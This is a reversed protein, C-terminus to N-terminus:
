WVCVRDRGGAKASIVAHKALGIVDEESNSADLLSLGLSVTVHINTGNHLKIQMDKVNQRLQNFYDKATEIDSDALIFLFEESSYRFIDGCDKMLTSLSEMVTSMVTNGALYGYQDNIVGLHDFNMM